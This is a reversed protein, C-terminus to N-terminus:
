GPANTRDSGQEQRLMVDDIEGLQTGIISPRQTVRELLIAAGSLGLWLWLRELWMSSISYAVPAAVWLSLCYFCDMLEGLISNGAWRRLVVIINWPGDEAQLLHTVRWVVLMGLVLWYFSARM